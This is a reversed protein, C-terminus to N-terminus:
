DSRITIPELWLWNPNFQTPKFDPKELKYRTEIWFLDLRLRIPNNDIRTMILKPQDPDTQFRTETQFCIPHFQNPDNDTWNM